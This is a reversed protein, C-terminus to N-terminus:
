AEYEIANSVASAEYGNKYAKAKFTQGSTLTVTSEYATSGSTPENGNTTYRITAGETACSVSVKNKNAGTGRTAVPTAVTPTWNAAGLEALIDTLVTPVVDGTGAVAAFSLEKLNRGSPVGMKPLTEYAIDLVYYDHGTSSDMESDLIGDMVSDYGIFGTCPDAMTETSNLQSVKELAWIKYANKYTKASDVVGDYVKGTAAATSVESAWSTPDTDPSLINTTLYMQIPQPDMHMEMRRRTPTQMSYTNDEIKIYVKTGDSQSAYNSSDLATSDNYATAKVPQMGKIYQNNIQNALEYAFKCKTTHAAKKAVTAFKEWRDTIGYGYLNTFHMYVTYLTGNDGLTPITIEWKKFVPGAPKTLRIRKIWDKCFQDTTIRQSDDTPVGGASTQVKLYVLNDKEVAVVKNGSKLVHFNKVIVENGLQM